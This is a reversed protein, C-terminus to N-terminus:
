RGARGPQRTSTCTRAPWGDSRGRVLIHVDRREFSYGHPTYVLSRSPQTTFARVYLGAYSSHAHVVDPHLRRLHRRVFRVQAMRGPPMPLVESALEDLRDGTQAEGRRWALVTHTCGPTSRVYDELATAVGSSLSEVVHLIHPRRDADHSAQVPERAPRALSTLPRHRRSGLPGSPLTRFRGFM